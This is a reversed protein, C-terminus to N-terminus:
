CVWFINNLVYLLHLKALLGWINEVVVTVRRQTIELSPCLTIRPNWQKLALFMTLM